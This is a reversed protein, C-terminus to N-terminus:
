VVDYACGMDCVLRDGVHVGFNGTCQNMLWDMAHCFLFPVLVCAQRIVSSTRSPHSLGYATRVRATLQALISITFFNYSLHHHEEVRYRRGCHKVTLQSM